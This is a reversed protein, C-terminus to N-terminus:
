ELVKALELLIFLSVFSSGAESKGNALVKSLPHIPGYIDSALDTLPSYKYKFHNSLVIGSLSKVVIVM